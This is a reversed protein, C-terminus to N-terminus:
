ASSTAVAAQRWPPGALRRVKADGAAGTRAGLWARLDDPSMPHGFLFGQAGACGLSLLMAAQRETEVGEAIVTHGRSHALSVSARIMDEAQRDVGLRRVFRSDIKLGDVPLRLLQAVGSNGGGFDDLVLRAGRNRLGALEDLARDSVRDVLVDETIELEIDALSLGARAVQEVINLATDARVVENASLNLALRTGELGDQRLRQFAALAQGRVIQALWMAREPGIMPFLDSTPVTGVNPHSWRTLAEIALLAPTSDDKVLAVIPQLHVTAGEITDTGHVSSEFARMIAIGSSLKAVDEQVALGISGRRKRKARILAEDALRLAKDGEAVDNPYTAM